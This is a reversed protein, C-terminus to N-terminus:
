DGAAHDARLGLLDEHVVREAVHDLEMLGARAAADGGLTRRHRSLAAHPSLERALPRDTEQRWPGVQPPQDSARPETLHYNERLRGIRRRGGHGWRPHSTLHAPSPSSPGTAASVGACCATTSRAARMVRSLTAGRAASYSAAPALGTSLQRSSPRSPKRAEAMGTAWPPSPRSM